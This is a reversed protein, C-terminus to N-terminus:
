KLCIGITRPLIIYIGKELDIELFTERKYESDIHAIYEYADGKMRM